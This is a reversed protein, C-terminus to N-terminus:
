TRSREFSCWTFAQSSGTPTVHVERWDDLPRLTPALERALGAADYRQVPLGSCQEPGDPAFTAIIAVGGIALGLNLARRYGERQAASTLFHFVARDHWVDYTRDPLWTTIDAVEWRVRCAAPGMRAQAIRLAVALRARWAEDTIPHAAVLGGGPGPAM